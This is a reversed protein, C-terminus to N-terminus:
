IEALQYCEKLQIKKELNHTDKTKIKNRESGDDLSYALRLTIAPTPGHAM